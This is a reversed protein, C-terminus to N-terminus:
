KVKPTFQPAQNLHEMTKDMLDQHAPAVPQKSRADQNVPESPIQNYLDRISKIDM